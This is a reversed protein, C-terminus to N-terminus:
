TTTLSPYVKLRVFQPYKQGFNQYSKSKVTKKPLPQKSETEM